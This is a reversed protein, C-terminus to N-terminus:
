DNSNNPTVPPFPDNGGSCNGKIKPKGNPDSSPILFKCAKGGSGKSVEVNNMIVMQLLLGHLAISLPQFVSVLKPVQLKSAINLRSRHEFIKLAGQHAGVRVRLEVGQGMGGAVEGIGGSRDSDPRCISLGCQNRPARFGQTGPKTTDM